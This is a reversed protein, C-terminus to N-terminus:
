KGRLKEGVKGQKLLHQAAKELKEGKVTVQNQWENKKDGASGKEGTFINKQRPETKAPHQWM